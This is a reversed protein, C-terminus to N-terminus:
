ELTTSLGKDEVETEVRLEQAEPTERFPLMHAALAKTRLTIAWCNEVEDDIILHLKKETVVMVKFDAVTGPWDDPRMILETYRIGLSGLFKETEQRRSEFRGTVIYVLNGNAQLADILRKFHRPAQSITGDIDIGFRLGEREEVPRKPPQVTSAPPAEEERVRELATKGMEASKSLPLNPDKKM